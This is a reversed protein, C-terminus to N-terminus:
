GRTPGAQQKWAGSYHLQSRNELTPTPAPLDPQGSKESGEPGRGEWLELPSGKLLLLQGKGPKTSSFILFLWSGGRPLPPSPLTPSCTCAWRFSSLM